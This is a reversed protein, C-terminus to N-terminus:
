AAGGVVRDRGTRKAEYLRQDALGLLLELNVADPSTAVGISATVSIGLGSHEWGGAGVAKRLRECCSAAASADTDPM